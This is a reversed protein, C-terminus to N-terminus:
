FLQSFVETTSFDSDSIPKEFNRTLSERDAITLDIPTAIGVGTLEPWYRDTGAM